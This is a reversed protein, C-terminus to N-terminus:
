RNFPCIQTRFHVGMYTASDEERMGQHRGGLVGGDVVYRDFHPLQKVHSSM